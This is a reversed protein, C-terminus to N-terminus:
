KQGFTAHRISIEPARQLWVVDVAGGTDVGGWRLSGYVAQTNKLNLMTRESWAGGAPRTVGIINGSKPAENPYSSGTESETWVVYLANQSTVAISPFFQWAGTNAGLAVPASWTSGNFTAYVIQPKDSGDIKQRWVAHLQNNGDIVVSVHRQDYSNPAIAQWKSWTAGSDNSRSWIIQQNKGDSGYALIYKQSGDGNTVITPRSHSRTTDRAVDQVPSWNAGGDTSRTIKVQQEDRSGADFGEWAVNLTTGRVFLTPHEQWYEEGSYGTVEAINRTSSWSAGGDRSQSYKIQRDNDNHNADNGYWVVHLVDSSDIAIAPHRQTYDGVDDIPQNNNLVSWTTGDDTSRAVFIRLVDNATKKRYAIYLAGHSDRVIKRQDTYGMAEDDDPNGDVFASGFSRVESGLRGLLVDYPPQNEPHYEMRRREFYQVDYSQGGIQEQNVGTIPYGFRELGGNNQWYTLFRGCANYGTQAFNSCGTAPQDNGKQWSRGLQDLREAGLRGALVGIGEDSHDELRDREFWQVQLEKSEVTAKQQPGIPLGFVPLGGNQEWFRRIRGKICYSTEPFCREESQAQAAYPVTAALLVPIMLCSALRWIHRLM